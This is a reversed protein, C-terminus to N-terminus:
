AVHGRRPPLRHLARSFRRSGGTEVRRNAPTAAFQSQQERMEDAKESAKECFCFEDASQDFREANRL